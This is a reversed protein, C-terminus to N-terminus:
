MLKALSYPQNTAADYVIHMGLDEEDDESTSALPDGNGRRRTWENATRTPVAVVREDRVLEVNARGLVEEAWEIGQSIQGEFGLDGPRLSLIDGERAPEGATPVRGTQLFDQQAKGPVKFLTEKVAARGSAGHFPDMNRGHEPAGSRAVQVGKREAVPPVGGRLRTGTGSLTRPLSQRKVGREDEMKQSNAQPPARQLLADAEGGLGDGRGLLPGGGSRLVDGTSRALGPASSRLRATDHPRVTSTAKGGPKSICTVPAAPRKGTPARQSSARVGEKPVTRTAAHKHDASPPNHIASPAPLPYSEQLLQGLRSSGLAHIIARGAAAIQLSGCAPM